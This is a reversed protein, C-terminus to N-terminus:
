PMAITLTLQNIQQICFLMLCVLWDVQATSVSAPLQQRRWGNGNLLMQQLTCDVTYSMGTKSKSGKISM